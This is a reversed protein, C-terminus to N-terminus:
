KKFNWVLATGDPCDLALRQGDASFAIPGKEAALTMVTKGNGPDAITINKGDNWAVRKGDGAHAFRPGWPDDRAVACDVAWLQKAGEVQWLCIKGDHWTVIQKGDPSFDLAQGSGPLKVVEKGDAVKFIAVAKDNLTGAFLQCDPSLVVKNAEEHEFKNADKWDPVEWVHGGKPHIAVATKGDPSAGVAEWSQMNLDAVRPVIGTLERGSFVVFAQVNNRYETQPDGKPTFTPIPQFCGLIVWKSNATFRIPSRAFTRPKDSKMDATQFGKELDWVIMCLGGEEANAEPLHHMWVLKKGDPSFAISDRHLASHDYNKRPQGLRTPKPASDGASAPLTFILAFCFALCPRLLFNM